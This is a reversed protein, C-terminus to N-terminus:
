TLWPTKLLAGLKERVMEESLGEMLCPATAPAYDPYDILEDFSEPTRIFDAHPGYPRYIADYSPGFLGLTKVSAAAACHMLGSDNGFYFDCLSLAAAATGPDAKAIMDIRREQPISELLQTAVAEEGPAAFVAM